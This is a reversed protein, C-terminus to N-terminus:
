APGGPHAPHAALHRILSASEDPPLAAQTLARFTEAAQTVDAPRTTVTVHLGPGGAWALTDSIGDGFGLLTFPPSLVCRAALPIVQIVPGPPSAAALHNLQGATIGASGIVRRLASEDLVLRLERHQGPPLEQRHQRVADLSRADRTSLGPRAARCAAAAYDATQVLGPVAGAAYSRIRAAAAELGLYDAAGPPLADAHGAWWGKQQGQRALRALAERQEPGAVGYLDLMLSLYSVRAPAKGTEIRSLTSPAVGLSPAVDELKLSRAERLRRLEAGLRRRPIAPGTPALATGAAQTRTM